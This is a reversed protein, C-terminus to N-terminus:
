ELQNTELLHGSSEDVNLLVLARKGCIVHWIHGRALAAEVVRLDDRHQAVHHSAHPQEFAGPGGDASLPKVRVQLRQCTGGGLLEHLGHADGTGLLADTGSATPWVHWGM